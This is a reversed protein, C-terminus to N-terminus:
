ACDYPVTKKKECYYCQAAWPSSSPRIIGRDLLKKPEERITHREEPPSKRRKEAVAICAEKKLPLTLEGVVYAPVRKPDSPFLGATTYERLDDMLQWKENPGLQSLNAYKVRIEPSSEATTATPPPPKPPEPIHPDRASPSGDFLSQFRHANRAELAIMHVISTLNSVKAPENGRNVPKYM